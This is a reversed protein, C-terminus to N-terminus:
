EVVPPRFVGWRWDDLLTYKKQHAERPLCWLHAAPLTYQGFQRPKRVEPSLDTIRIKDLFWPTRIQEYYPSDWRERKKDFYRRNLNRRRELYLPQLVQGRAWHYVVGFYLAHLYEEWDYVVLRGRECIIREEHLVWVVHVGLGHYCRTRYDIESRPKDILQIEVAGCEDGLCFSVDAQVPGFRREIEVNTVGPNTRLAHAVQEKVKCHITGESM